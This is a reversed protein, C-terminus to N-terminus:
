APIGALLDDNSMQELRSIRQQRLVQALFYMLSDGNVFFESGDPKVINVDGSMDSNYHYYVGNHHETHM